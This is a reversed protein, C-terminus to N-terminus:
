LTDGSGGSSPDMCHPNAAEGLLFYLRNERKSLRPQKKVRKSWYFNLLLSPMGDGLHSMLLGHSSGSERLVWSLLEPCVQQLILCLNFLAQKDWRLGRQVQRHGASGWVHSVM